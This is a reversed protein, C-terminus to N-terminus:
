SRKKGLKMPKADPHKDIFDMLLIELDDSHDENLEEYKLQKELTWVFGNPDANYADQLERNPWSGLRLQFSTRNYDANADKTTMVWIDNGHRWTVVGMDPHRNDYQERLEKRRDKDM